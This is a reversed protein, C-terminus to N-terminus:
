TCTLRSKERGLFFQKRSLDVWSFEQYWVPCAFWPSAGCPPKSDETVSCLLLLFTFICNYKWARKPSSVIRSQSPCSVCYWVTYTYSLLLAELELGAWSSDLLWLCFAGLHDLYDAAQLLTVCAGCIKHVAIFLWCWNRQFLLGLILELCYQSYFLYYSARWQSKIQYRSVASSITLNLLLEQKWLETANGLPCGKIWAKVVAGLKVWYPLKWNLWM